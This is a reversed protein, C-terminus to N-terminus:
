MKSAHTAILRIKSGIRKYVRTFRLDGGVQQGDRLIVSVDRSLVIATDGDYTRVTREVVTIKEYRIQGSRLEAIQDAKTRVVGAPTVLTYDDSYIESLAAVDGRLLAQVRLDDVARVERDFPGNITGASHACSIAGLM